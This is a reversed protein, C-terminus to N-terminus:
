IIGNQAEEPWEATIPVQHVSGLNFWYNCAVMPVWTSGTFTLPRSVHVYIYAWLKACVAKEQDAETTCHTAYCCSGSWYVPDRARKGGTDCHASVYAWASSLAQQPLRLIDWSLNCFQCYLSVKRWKTVKLCISWVKEQNEWSGQRKRQHDM